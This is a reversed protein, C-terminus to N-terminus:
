RGTSLNNTLGYLGISNAKFAIIESTNLNFLFLIQGSWEGIFGLYNGSLTSKWTSSWTITSKYRTSAVNLDASNFTVFYLYMASGYVFTCYIKLGDASVISDSYFSEWLGSTCAMKSAFDVATNGFTVKYFNMNYPFLPNTSFLFLQNDNLLSPGYGQTKM